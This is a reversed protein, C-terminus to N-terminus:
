PSVNEMQKSAILEYAKDALISYYGETNELNDTEIRVAEEKIQEEYNKQNEEDSLNEDKVFRDSGSSCATLILSFVIILVYKKMNKM